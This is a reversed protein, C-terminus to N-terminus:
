KEVKKDFVIQGDIYKGVENAREDFIKRQKKDVFYTKDDVKIKDLIPPMNSPTRDEETESEVDDVILQKKKSQNRKKVYKQELEEFPINYDKSLNMLITRVELEIANATSKTEEYYVKETKKVTSIIKQLLYLVSDKNTAM